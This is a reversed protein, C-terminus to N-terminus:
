LISYPKHNITSGTGFTCSSPLCGGNRIQGFVNGGLKFVFSFGTSSDGSHGSNAEIINM